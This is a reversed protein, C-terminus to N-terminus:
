AGSRMRAEIAALKKLIAADTEAKTARHRPPGGRRAKDTGANRRAAMLRLANDVEVKGYAPAGDEIQQGSGGALAHGVLLTELLQYGHDLAKDWEAVFEADHRRLHYVSVPDVGIAAASARVNCTAALHDLFAAKMARTWRVWKRGTFATPRAATLAVREKKHSGAM